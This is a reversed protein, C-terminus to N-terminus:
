KDDRWYGPKGCEVCAWGEGVPKCPCLSLRCRLPLLHRGIMWRLREILSQSIM